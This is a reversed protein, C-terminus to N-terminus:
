GLVPASFLNRLNVHRASRGRARPLGPVAWPLSPSPDSFGSVPGPWIDGGRAGSCWSTTASVSGPPPWRSPTAPSPTSAAPCYFGPTLLGLAAPVASWVPWTRPVATSAPLFGHVGMVEGTGWLAGLIFGMCNSAAFFLAPLHHFTFNQFIARTYKQFPISPYTFHEIYVAFNRAQQIHVARLQSAPLRFRPPSYLM